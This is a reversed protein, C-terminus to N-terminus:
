MPFAAAEEVPQVQVFWAWPLELSRITGDSLELRVEDRTRRLCRVEQGEVLGLETCRDRVMGFLIHEIRFARSPDPSLGAATEWWPWRGNADM